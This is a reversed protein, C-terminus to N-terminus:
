FREAIKSSPAAELWAKPGVRNYSNALVAMARCNKDKVVRLLQMNPFHAVVTDSPDSIAAIRLLESDAYDAGLSVIRLGECPRDEKAEPTVFSYITLEVGVNLLGNIMLAVEDHTAYTQEAGKAHRKLVDAFDGAFFYISANRSM